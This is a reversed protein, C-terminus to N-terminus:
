NSGEEFGSFFSPALFTKGGDTFKSGAPGPSTEASWRSRRARYVKYRTHTKESGTIYQSIRSLRATARAARVRAVSAVVERGRFRRLVSSESIWLCM